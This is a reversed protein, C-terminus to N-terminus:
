LNFPSDTCTGLNCYSNCSAQVHVYMYLVVSVPIDINAKNAGGGGGGVGGGEIENCLDPRSTQLQPLILLRDKILQTYLSLSQMSSVSNKVKDDTLAKGEEAVGQCYEM